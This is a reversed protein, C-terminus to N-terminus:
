VHLVAKYHQKNIHSTVDTPFAPSQRSCTYFKQNFILSFGASPADVFPVWLLLFALCCIGGLILHDSNQVNESILEGFCSQM